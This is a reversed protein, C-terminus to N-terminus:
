IESTSYGKGNEGIGSANNEERRKNRMTAYFSASPAFGNASWGEGHARQRLWDALSKPESNGNAGGGKASNIAPLSSNRSNASNLKGGSNGRMSSAGGKSLSSAAAAGGRRRKDLAVAFKFFDGLGEGISDRIEAQKAQQDGAGEEQIVPLNNTALSNTNTATGFKNANTIVGNRSLANLWLPNNGNPFASKFAGPQSKLNDGLNISNSPEQGTPLDAMMNSIQEDSM